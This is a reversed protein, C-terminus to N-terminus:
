LSGTEPPVVMLSVRWGSPSVLPLGCICNAYERVLSEMQYSKDSTNPSGKLPSETSRWGESLEQKGIVQGAPTGGEPGSLTPTHPDVAFTTNVTQQIQEKIANGKDVTKIPLRTTSCWFLPLTIIVM